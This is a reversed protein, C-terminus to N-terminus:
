TTNLTGIRGLGSFVPYLLYISLYIFTAEIDETCHQQLRNIQTIFTLPLALTREGEPPHVSNNYITSSVQLPPLCSTIM